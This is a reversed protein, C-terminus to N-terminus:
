AKAPGGAAPQMDKFFYAQRLPHLQTEMVADFAGDRQAILDAWPLQASEAQWFRILDEVKGVVKAPNGTVISGPPVSKRVIAGAGIISGAGITTGGLVIVGEGVYVDDHIIVPGVRDLRIGYRQQLVEIAGDHCILTCKGLSVRDGIWTYEPDIIRASPLISCDQGLHYLGAHRGLYAAWERGDPRNLRKYLSLARNHRMALHRILRRIV